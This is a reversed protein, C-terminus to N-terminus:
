QLKGDKELAQIIRSDARLDIGTFIDAVPYGLAIQIITQTEDYPEMIVVGDYSISSIPTWFAGTYIRENGVCVVFPIGDAKIPTPFVGRVRAYAEQTLQITHSAKDYAILDNSSIIPESEIMLQNIDAQALETAAINQTILYIAFGDTKSQQCGSSAWACFIILLLFLKKLM